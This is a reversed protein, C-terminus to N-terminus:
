RTPRPLSRPSTLQGRRLASAFAGADEFVENAGAALLENRSFGGTLVGYTDLGAAVGAQVGFPSDELVFAASRVIGNWHYDGSM